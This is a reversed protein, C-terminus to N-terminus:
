AAEKCDPQRAFYEALAQISHVSPEKIHGQAIKCLTSFPVGSEIAVRRQPIRKSRLNDMVFEYINPIQTNM